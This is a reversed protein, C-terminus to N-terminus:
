GSGKLLQGDLNAITAIDQPLSFELVQLYSLTKTYSAFLICLYLFRGRLSFSSLSATISECILSDEQSQGGLPERRSDVTRSEPRQM